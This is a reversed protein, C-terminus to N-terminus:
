KFIVSYILRSMLNGVIYCKSLYLSLRAQAAEKEALYESDNETLLKSTM